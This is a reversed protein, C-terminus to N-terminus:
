DGFEGAVLHSRLEAWNGGDIEVDFRLQPEKGTLSMSAPTGGRVALTPEALVVWSSDASRTLYISQMHFGDGNRSVSLLVRHGDGASSEVKAQAMEGLRVLMRPAFVREGDRSIALTVLAADDSGPTAAVPLAAIGVIALAVAAACRTM